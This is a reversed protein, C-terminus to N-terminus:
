RCPGPWSVTKKFGLRYGQHCGLVGRDRASLRPDLQWCKDKLGQVTQLGTACGHHLVSIAAESWGALLLTKLERQGWEGPGGDKM